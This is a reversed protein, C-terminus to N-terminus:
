IACRNRYDQVPYELGFFAFSGMVGSARDTHVPYMRRLRNLNQLTDMILSTDQTPSRSRLFEGLLDLPGKNEVSGVEAKIYSTEISTALGALSAVRYAFEETSNCTRSLESLSREQPLGLIRGGFKEGSLANISDRLDIIESALAEKPRNETLDTIASQAQYPVDFPLHITKPDFPPHGPTNYTSLQIEERKSLTGNLLKDRVFQGAYGLLVRNVSEPELGWSTELTRSIGVVIEGQVTHAAEQHGRVLDTDVISYKFVIERGDGGFLGVRDFEESPLINVRKSPMEEKVDTCGRSNLRTTRRVLRSGPLTAPRTYM